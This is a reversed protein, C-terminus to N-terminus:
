ADYSGRGLSRTRRGSSRRLSDLLNKTLAPSAVYNLGARLRQARPIYPASCQLHPVHRVGVRLIHDVHHEACLVSPFDDISLKPGLQPRVDRANTSLQIDMNMAYTARFIVNMKEELNRRNQRQRFCKCGDLRIRRSPGAFLSMLKRPLLAVAREAHARGHNGDDYPVYLILFCMVFLHIKFGLKHRQQFLM